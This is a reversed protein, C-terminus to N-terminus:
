VGALLPSPILRLPSDPPPPTPPPPSSPPEPRRSSPSPAPLPRRQDTSAHVDAVLAAPSPPPPPPPPPPPSPPPPALPHASDMLLRRAYSRSPTPDSIRHFTALWTGHAPPVEERPSPSWFPCLPCLPRPSWYPRPPHDHTIMISPAAINGAVPSHVHNSVDASSAARYLMAAWRSPPPPQHLQLPHPPAVQPRSPRLSGCPVAESLGANARHCRIPHEEIPRSRSGHSVGHDVYRYLINFLTQMGVDRQM